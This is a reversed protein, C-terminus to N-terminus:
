NTYKNKFIEYLSDNRVCWNSSSSYESYLGPKYEHFSGSIGQEKMIDLMDSVWQCGGYEFTAVFAGYEGMYMPVNHNEMFKTYLKVKSELYSKDIVDVQEAKVFSLTPTIDATNTAGDVKVYASIKYSYGEKLAFHKYSNSNSITYEGTTNKLVICGSNNIGGNESYAVEGPLGDFLSPIVYYDDYKDCNYNKATAIYDGNEDYVTVVINDFYATSGKGMNSARLTAYAANAYNLDEAKYIPSEVYQWETRSNNLNSNYYINTVWSPNCVDVESYNPYSTSGVAYESNTAMHTFEIPYYFHYEVAFNDDKIEFLADSYEFIQPEWTDMDIIMTTPEVFLIHNKDVTRITDALEQAYNEWNAMSSQISGTYAVRPENLLGYGIVAASDKYRNALFKWMAKLRNRNEAANNGTFLFLSGQPIDWSDVDKSGQPIHMNFLIKIGYKEAWAVNQDLWDLGSQKYVYPNSDDELLAYNLYYRITNFGAEALEKYSNEDNYWTQPTTPNYWMYNGFNMGKMIFENDNEDYYKTGKTYIFKKNTQPTQTVIPMETPKITPQPTPEPENTIVKGLVYWRGGSYILRNWEIYQNSNLYKSTSPVTYLYNSVNTGSINTPNKVYGSGIYDYYYNLRSKLNSTTITVDSETIYYKATAYRNRSAADARLIPVSTCIIAFALFFSVIFKIKSNKHYYNKM